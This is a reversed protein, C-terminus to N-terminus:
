RGNSTSSSSHVTDLGNGRSTDVNRSRRDVDVDLDNRREVRRRCAAERERGAGGARPPLSLTRLAGYETMVVGSVM